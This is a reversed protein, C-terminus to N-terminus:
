GRGVFGVGPQQRSACGGQAGARISQRRDLQPLNQLDAAVASPPTRPTLQVDAAEVMLAAARRGHEGEDILSEATDVKGALWRRLTADDDDDDVM